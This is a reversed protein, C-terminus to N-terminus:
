IALSLSIYYEMPLLAPHTHSSPKRFTIYIYLEHGCKENFSAANVVSVLYISVPM